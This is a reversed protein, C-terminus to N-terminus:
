GKILWAIIGGTIAIGMLTIYDILVFGLLSAVYVSIIIGIIGAVPNVFMIGTILLGLMFAYFTSDEAGLVESIITAFSGGIIQVIWDIGQGPSGTAYFTAVFTGNEYAAINCLLTASAATTCDDCISTDGSAAKKTVRLCGEEFKGDPKSFTLVFNQTLNNYYINYDIGQFELFNFITEEGLTFIRPSDFINEPLTTEVTEGDQILVFKYLSDLWNVYVVDSGISSTLAQTVTIFSNSGIDFYQVNILINGLPFGSQDYVQLVTADALSNNLLYLTQSTVNTTLSAGVLFNDASAFEIATAQVQNSVIVSDNWHNLCFSQSSNTETLDQYSDNVQM